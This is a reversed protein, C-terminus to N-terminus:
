KNHAKTMLNGSRFKHKVQSELDKFAKHMTRPLEWDAAKTSEFVHSPTQARVHVAWKSRHGTKKYRKIHVVMEMIHKVIIQIKPFYEETLRTVVDQDIDELDKLGIYRIISQKTVEKAMNMLIRITNLFSEYEM